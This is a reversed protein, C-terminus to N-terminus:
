SLLSSTPMSNDYILPLGRTRVLLLPLVVVMDDVLSLIFSSVLSEDDGDDSDDDDNLGNGDDGDV